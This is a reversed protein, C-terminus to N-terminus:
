NGWTLDTKGMITIQSHDKGTRVKVVLRENYKKDGTWALIPSIFHSQHAGATWGPDVWWLQLFLKSNQPIDTM